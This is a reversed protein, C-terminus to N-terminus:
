KMDKWFPKVLWLLALVGILSGASAMFTPKAVGLTFNLLLASITCMAFLYVGWRRWLWIATLSALRLTAVALFIGLELFAGSYTPSLVIPLGTVLTYILAPVPLLILVVLLLPRKPYTNHPMKAANLPFNIQRKLDARVTPKRGLKQYYESYEILILTIM